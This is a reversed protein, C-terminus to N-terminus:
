VSSRIHWWHCLIIPLPHPFVQLHSFLVALWAKVATNFLVLVLFESMTITEGLFFNGESGLRTIMKNVVAPCPIGLSHWAYSILEGQVYIRSIAIILTLHMLSHCFYKKLGFMWWLLFKTTRISHFYASSTRVHNICCYHIVFVSGVLGTESGESTKLVVLDTSYRWCGRVFRVIDRM